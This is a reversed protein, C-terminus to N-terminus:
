KPAAPIPSQIRPRLDRGLLLAMGAYGAALTVLSGAAGYSLIMPIVALLVPVATWINIVTLRRFRRSAQLASSLVMDLAQLMTVVCWLAVLPGIGAYKDPLVGGLIVRLSLLVACAYCAILALLAVITRLCMRRIDDTQGDASLQALRPTLIRTSGLTLLSAPMLLMRAANLDAVAATTGLWGLLYVHAQNQAATVAVGGLAWRGHQWAAQTAHRARRAGVQLSLPSLALASLSTCAAAAGYSVLAALHPPMALGVALVATAAGWLLVLATDLLFASGARQVLFFYARFFDHAMAFPAAFALCAVLLGAPDHRAALWSGAALALLAAGGSLVAQGTLMAAAYAHRGAPPVGYYSATMQAGFLASSVGNFLILTMYCLSYLGYDDKTAIRLVLLGVALNGASVTAQDGLAALVQLRRQTLVQSARAILRNM